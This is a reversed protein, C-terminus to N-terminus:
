QYNHLIQAIRDIESSPLCAETSIEVFRNANSSFNILPSSIKKDFLCFFPVANARLYDKFSNIDSRVYLIFKFFLGDDNEFPILLEKSQKIARSLSLYNEKRTSRAVPLKSISDSAAQLQFTCM